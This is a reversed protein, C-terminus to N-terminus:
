WMHTLSQRPVKYAVFLPTVEDGSVFGDHDRDWNAFLSFLIM